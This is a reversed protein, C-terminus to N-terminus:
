FNMRALAARILNETTQEAEPLESTIAQITRRIADRKYGLNELALAADNISDLNGKKAGEAGAAGAPAFGPASLKDHLEVIMREATRKGIGSIRSLAKVDRNVVADCFNAVSMGSLINLALKGGIGSVQVLACFLEKEGPTAFGFLTIADERVQTLIHLEVNEGPRPLKDFTSLPIAVEYGVGNVDVICNTYSTELLTGRLRAIM